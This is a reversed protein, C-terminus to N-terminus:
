KKAFTHWYFLSIGGCAFDIAQEMSQSLAQNRRLKLIVNL